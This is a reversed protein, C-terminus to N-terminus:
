SSYRRGLYKFMGSVYGDSALSQQRIWKWEKKGLVYAPLEVRDLVARSLEPSGACALDRAHKILFFVAMANILEPNIATERGALHLRVIRDGAVLRLLARLEQDACHHHLLAAYEAFFAAGQSVTKSAEHHRFNVVTTDVSVIRDLGYSGLFRIWLERDMVYQLDAAVGGLEEIVEKRFFTSPQEILLNCLTDKLSKRNVYSRKTRDQGAGFVRTVGTVCLADSAVFAEAISLLADPCYYDDSNLWNVVDGTSKSLGKNIADSQGQDRESVWYAIHREHRKIVNVTGDRSDGDIVILELSPYRQDLVSEIAEGIYEGQNLSPIIISIKPQEM